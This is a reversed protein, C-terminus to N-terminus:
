VPGPGAAGGPGAGGGVRQGLHGLPMKFGWALESRILQSTANYLAIIATIFGFAGGADRLASASHTTWQSVALFLYTLFWSFFLLIFSISRRLVVFCFLFTIIAWVMYYLGIANNTQPSSAATTGSTIGAGPFLIIAYSFYFAAYMTFITSGFVNGRPFEWMGALFQVLGGVFLGVAIM